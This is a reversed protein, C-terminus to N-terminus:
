GSKWDGRGAIELGDALDGGANAARRDAPQGSGALGVDVAGPFRELVRGSRSDVHEEGGAGDVALELELHVFVLDDAACDGPDLSRDAIAVIDFERGLVGGAGLRIE